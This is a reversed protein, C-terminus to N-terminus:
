RLSRDTGPDLNRTGPNPEPNPNPELDLNSDWWEDILGDFWSRRFGPVSGGSGGFRAQCGAGPVRFWGVTWGIGWSACAVRSALM